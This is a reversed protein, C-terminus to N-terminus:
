RGRGRRSLLANLDAFDADGDGDIDGPSRAGPGVPKAAGGGFGALLAQLDATPAAGDGNQDLAPPALTLAPPPLAGHRLSPPRVPPGLDAGPCAAGYATLVINLDLFNVISDGNFDARQCPDPPAGYETLLTNLDLFDVVHDANADGPCPPPAPPTAPVPVVAVAAIPIGLGIGALGAGGLEGNVTVRLLRISAGAASGADPSLSLPGTGIEPIATFQLRGAAGSLNIVPPILFPTLGPVADGGHFVAFTDFFIAPLGPELPFSRVDAGEAHNWVSGHVDIYMSPNGDGGVSWGNFAINDSGELYLDFTRWPGGAAWAAGAIADECPRAGSIPQMDNPAERWRLGALLVLEAPDSFAGTCLGTATCIYSGDDGAAVGTITLTPTTAGSFRGGDDVIVGNRRWQYSVGTGAAAAQFVVTDGPAALRDMPHATFVTPDALQFAVDDILAGSGPFGSGPRLEFEVRAVAGSFSAPLPFSRSSPTETLVALTVQGLEIWAGGLTQARAFIRDSLSSGATRAARFTLAAVCGPSVFFNSRQSEGPDLELTYAGPEGVVDGAGGGGAGLWGAMSGHAFDGHHPATAPPGSTPSLLPFGPEPPTTPAGPTEAWVYRGDAFALTDILFRTVPFTGLCGGIHAYAGGLARNHSRGLSRGGLNLRTFYFTNCLPQGGNFGAEDYISFINDYRVSQGPFPLWADFVGDQYRNCLGDACGEGDLYIVQAPAHADLILRRAAESAVVAGRDEGIIAEVRDEADWSKLFTFLSDGAAYAYGDDTVGPGPYCWPAASLADRDIPATETWDFLLVHHHTPSSPGAGVVTSIGFTDRDMKHVSVGTPALSVIRDALQRMWGSVPATLQDYTVPAGCASSRGHVIVTWKGQPPTSQARAGPAGLAALAVLLARLTHHRSPM